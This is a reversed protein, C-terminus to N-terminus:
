HTRSAFSCYGGVPTSDQEDKELMSEVKKAVAEAITRCHMACGNGTYNRVGEATSFDCKTIAHCQTSGFTQTFWASMRAGANMIKNFENMDDEFANGGAAMTAIMRVVKLRSNEITGKKLGMAMIGSTLASCTHGQFITGGIFPSTADLLEQTLPIVHDLRKLVAHACHFGRRHLYGYLRRFSDQTESTLSDGHEDFTTEMYLEPSHMVVGICPIPLRREGRIEKCFLTGKCSRFQRCYAHGAYFVQPLGNHMRRLGYRLGLLVLPATVGGCEYGINGIGGPLGASLKVLWDQRSGTMDLVTQMVSPACHGMKLLNALGRWRASYQAVASDEEKTKLQVAEM